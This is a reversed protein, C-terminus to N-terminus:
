PTRPPGSPTAASAPGAGLNKGSALYDARSLRFAALTQRYHVADAQRALGIKELVRHSARNDPHSVAVIPDFAFARFGYDLM